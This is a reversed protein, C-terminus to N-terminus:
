SLSLMTKFKLDDLYSLLGGYFRKGVEGGAILANEMSVLVSWHYADNFYIIKYKCDGYKQGTLPDIADRILYWAIKQRTNKKLFPYKKTNENVSLLEFKM